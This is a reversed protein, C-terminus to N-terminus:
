SVSNAAVPRSGSRNAPIGLSFRPMEGTKPRFSMSAWAARTTPVFRKLASQSTNTPDISQFVNGTKASVSSKTDRCDTPAPRAEFDSLEDAKVRPTWSMRGIQWGLSALGLEIYQLNTRDVSLGSGMFLALAVKPIFSERVKIEIERALRLAEVTETAARKEDESRYSLTGLTATVSLGLVVILLCAPNTWHQVLRSWPM